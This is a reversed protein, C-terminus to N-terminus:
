FDIGNIRLVRLAAFQSYLKTVKESTRLSECAGKFELTNLRYNSFRENPLRIEKTNICLSIKLTHLARCTELHSFDVLNRCNLINVTHLSYSGELGSLNTLRILGELKLTCLSDNRKLNSVLKCYSLELHKLSTCSRLASLDTLSKCIGVVFTELNTCKEIGSLTGLGICHEGLVTIRYTLHTYVPLMIHITSLVFSNSFGLVMFVNM